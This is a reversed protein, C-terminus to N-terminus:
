TAKAQSAGDSAEAIGPTTAFMASLPIVAGPALSNIAAEVQGMWTAMATSAKEHDGKRHIEAAGTKDGLTIMSQELHVQVGDDKGLTAENTLCSGLAAGFPRLGVFAVADTLAHGHDIEPDVEGGTGSLWRDLSADSFVLLCTDGDTSSAHIPFTLRYGGAGPFIVPVSAVVPLSEVGRADDEGYFARKICPKVDARQKQADWKVIRGPVCVHLGAASADAAAELVGALQPSRTPADPPM